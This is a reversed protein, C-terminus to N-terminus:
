PTDKRTADTEKVQHIFQAVRMRRARVLDTLTWLLSEIFLLVRMYGYALRIGRRNRLIQGIRVVEAENEISVEPTTGATDGAEIQARTRANVANVDIENVSM